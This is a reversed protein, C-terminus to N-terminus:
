FLYKFVHTFYNTFLDVSDYNANIDPNEYTNITSTSNINKYADPKRFNDLTDLTSM